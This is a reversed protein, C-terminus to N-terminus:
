GRDRGVMRRTFTSKRGGHDRSCRLGGLANQGAHLWPQMDTRTQDYQRRQEEISAYQADSAADAGRRAEIVAALRELTDSLKM